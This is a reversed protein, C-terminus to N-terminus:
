NYAATEQMSKIMLDQKLKLKSLYEYVEEPTLREYNYMTTCLQVVSALLITDQKEVEANMEKALLFLASILGAVRLLEERTIMQEKEIWSCLLTAIDTLTDNLWKFTYM